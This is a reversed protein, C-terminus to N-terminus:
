MTSEYRVRERRAGHLEKLEQERERAQRELRHAEFGERVATRRDASRMKEPTERQTDV